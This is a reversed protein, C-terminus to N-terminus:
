PRQLAAAALRGAGLSAAVGPPTRWPVPDTVEGSVGSQGRARVRGRDRQGTQSERAPPESRALPGGIHGRMCGHM